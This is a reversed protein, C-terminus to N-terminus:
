FILEGDVVMKKVKFDVIIQGGSPLPNILQLQLSKDEPGVIPRGEVTRPFVLQFVPSDGRPPIYEELPARLRKAGALYTIGKLKATTQIKWDRTVDRLLTQENSSYEVYVVVKDPSRASLFQQAEQDFAKKQEETMQDYGRALQGQRVLAQRIPLASRLQFTFRVEPHAERATGQTADSIRNLVVSNIWQRAWPSDELMKRCEKESWETYQKKVWFDEAAATLSALCVVAALCTLTKRM